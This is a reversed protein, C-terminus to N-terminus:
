RQTVEDDHGPTGNRGPRTSTSGVWNTGEGRGLEMVTSVDLVGDERANSAPRPLTFGRREMFEAVVGMIYPYDAPDPVHGVGPLIKIIDEKRMRLAKALKKAHGVDTFEDLEGQLILIDDGSIVRRRIRRQMAREILDLNNFRHKLFLDMPMLPFADGARHTMSSFPSYFVKAKFPHELSAELAMSAGLSLGLPVVSDLDIGNKKCYKVAERASRKLSSESPSGTSSGYGPYEVAVVGLGADAIAKLLPAEDSVKGAYGHFVLITPAGLEPHKRWFVLEEDEKVKVRDEVFGALGYESPLGMKRVAIRGPEDQVLEGKERDFYRFFVLEEQWPYVIPWLVLQAWRNTLLLRTFWHLKRDGEEYKGITNGNASM